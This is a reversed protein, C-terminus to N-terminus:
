RLYVEVEIITSDVLDRAQKRPAFSVKALQMKNLNHEISRIFHLVSNYPTGDNIRIIVLTRKLTIGLPTKTTSPMSGPAVGFDIRSILVDARLAYSQLDNILQDQFTYSQSEAVIKATKEIIPKDTELRSRLKKLYSINLSAIDSDSHAHDVETNKVALVESAQVFILGIGVLELVILAVLVYQLTTASLSFKFNM